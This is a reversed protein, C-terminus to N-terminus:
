ASSLLISVEHRPQWISPEGSPHQTPQGTPISPRSTPQGTPYNYTSTVKRVRYNNIDAIYLSGKGNTDVALGSPSNLYADTAAGNDGLEYNNYGGAFTTIIGTGNTILRINNNMQDSIYVNGDVDVAIGSPSRLIASSAPGNDGNGLSGDSSSGAFVKIIGTARVLLVVNSSSSISKTSIYLNLHADVAIGSPTSLVALTAPGGDYGDDCNSACGAFLTVFGTDHAVLLVKNSGSEYPSGTGIYLNGLRDVAIGSPNVLLASTAACDYSYFSSSYDTTGAFTTIIGTSNVVRIKGNGSDAIYVSGSILDVAVAQPANLRASTAAGGDGSSGYAGTGAFTTIIGASNVMRVKHNMNDVIYLNEFSDMAVGYPDMFQASTAPGGDGGNGYDGTGAITTIM